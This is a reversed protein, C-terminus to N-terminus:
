RFNSDARYSRQWRKRPQYSRPAHWCSRRLRNYVIGRLSLMGQQLLLGSVKDELCDRRRLLNRETHGRSERPTGPRRQQLQM